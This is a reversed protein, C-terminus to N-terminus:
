AMDVVAGETVSVTVTIAPSLADPLHHHLPLAPFHLELSPALRRKASTLNLNLNLELSPALRRKASTLNLNLNLELSLAV